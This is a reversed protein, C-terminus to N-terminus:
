DPQTTKIMRTVVDHQQPTHTGAQAAGARPRCYHLGHWCQASRKEVKVTKRIWRERM